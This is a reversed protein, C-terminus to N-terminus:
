LFDKCLYSILPTSLVVLIYINKAIKLTKRYKWRKINPSKTSIESIQKTIKLLVKEITGNICVLQFNENTRPFFTQVTCLCNYVANYVVVTQYRLTINLWRQRFIIVSGNIGIQQLFIKGRRWWWTMISHRHFAQWASPNLVIIRGNCSGIKVVLNGAYWRPFWGPNYACMSM